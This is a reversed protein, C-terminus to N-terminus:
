VGMRLVQRMLGEGAIRFTQPQLWHRGLGADVLALFRIAESVAEIGGCPKIGVRREEYIEAGKVADLLLATGDLTTTRGFLGTSTAVFDAGERVVVRAAESLPGAENFAPTELIVKLAVSPGCAAKAAAVVAPGVVSDGALFARYPFVLDIEDAGFGIVREAEARVAMPKANGDPYNIVSGIRIGSGALCRAARPVFRPAVVVAAPQGTERVARGCLAEISRDDEADGLATLDMLRLIWRASGAAATARGAREVLDALDAPLEFPLHKRPTRM